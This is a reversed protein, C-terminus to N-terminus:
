RKALVHSSTVVKSRLEGFLQRSAGSNLVGSATLDNLFLSLGNGSYHLM